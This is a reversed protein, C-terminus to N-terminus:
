RAAQEIMNGLEIVAKDWNEPNYDWIELEGIAQDGYPQNIIGNVLKDARETNGDLEALMNMMEWEEVGDRTAKLRLSPCVRNVMPVIGPAYILQANGNYRRFSLPGKGHDRFYDKWTESNYWASKWGSGIGWSCWTLTGYKWAAWSPARENLLPLDMFTSSGCWSNKALEYLQPGYFWDTVGMERYKKILDMNYGITHCCWYDIADHIIEMAEENYNGDVRFKSEPFYQHFVKGWYDMRDWAEPFYSEDLGNLYVILRTKEPSTLALIHERVQKIAEVYVALNAPKREVDPKGIDPWGTSGHKGFVDFPLVYQELPQGYGPGRYGYKETFAEGSFYKKLRKDHDEWGIVVEGGSKVEVTPTYTPDAPVVRHRKFLQYVELELGEDMGQLFREQQLNAALNNQEPLTFDWVKLQVPITRTHEGVRVTVESNYSGAMAEPPVYQDVWILMYRQNDIRNRFDPLELPYRLRSIQAVDMQLLDLPILADPYWGVGLNGREYGTSHQKVEVAWELFLEPEFSLKKGDRVFTKTNVIVDHLTSDTLNEVVIQFSVYEGRAARLSVTTGDFVWNKALLDGLAPTKYVGHADDIIRGSAPDMRVSSPLAAVAFPANNPRARVVTAAAASLLVFLVLLTYPFSHKKM